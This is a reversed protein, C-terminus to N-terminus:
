TLCKGIQAAARVGALVLVVDEDQQEDLVDSIFVGSLGVRRDLDRGAGAERVHGGEPALAVDAVLDVFLDDSRQNRFRM